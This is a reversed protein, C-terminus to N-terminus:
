KITVVMLDFTNGSASTSTASTPQYTQRATVCVDTCDDETTFRNGNGKCGGYWFIRCVKHETDYFWYQEWGTCYEGEDRELECVDDSTYDLLLLLLRFRYCNAVSYAQLGSM